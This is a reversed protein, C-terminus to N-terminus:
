RVITVRGSSNGGALIISDTRPHFALRSAVATLAEGGVACTREQQAFIEVVRPKSMSGVGFIEYVPHWVAQFTTLWRGTMNDHRISHAPQVKSGKSASKELHFDKLIDLKNNMTTAVLTTGSPSFFASNISKGGFYTALSLPDKKGGLKRIDWLCVQCDLGGTALSYGNPHLSFFVSVRSNVAYLAGM